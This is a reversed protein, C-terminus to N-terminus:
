PTRTPSNSNLETKLKEQCDELINKIWYVCFRFRKQDDNIAESIKPLFDKNVAKPNNKFKKEAWEKVEPLKKYSHMSRLWSCIKEDKYNNAELTHAFRNRIKIVLHLDEYLDKELWGLLYALQVKITYNGLSGGPQFLDKFVKEESRLGTKLLADIRSEIIAPWLIGSTRAESSSALYFADIEEFSKFRFM